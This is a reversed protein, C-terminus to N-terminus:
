QLQCGGWSSRLQWHTRLCILWSPWPSPGVGGGGRWTGRREVPEIGLRESGATGAEKEKRVGKILIVATKFQILVHLHDLVKWWKGFSSDPICLLSPRGGALRSAQRWGGRGRTSVKMVQWQRPPLLFIPDPLIGTLFSGQINESSVVKIFSSTHGSLFGM